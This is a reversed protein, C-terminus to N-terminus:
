RESCPPRPGPLRHPPDAGLPHDGESDTHQAGSVTVAGHPHGQAQVRWRLLGLWRQGLDGPRALSIPNRRWLNQTREGFFGPDCLQTRDNLQKLLSKPKDGTLCRSGIWPCLSPTVNLASGSRM